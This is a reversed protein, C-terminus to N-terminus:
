AHSSNDMFQTPQRREKDVRYTEALYWLTSYAEGTPNKGGFLIQMKCLSTCFRPSLKFIWHTMISSCLLSSSLGCPWGKGSSTTECGLDMWHNNMGTFLFLELFSVSLKDTESLVSGCGPQHYSYDDIFQLNLNLSRRQLSTKIKM